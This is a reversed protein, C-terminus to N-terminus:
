RAAPLRAGRRSGPPTKGAYQEKHLGTSDPKAEVPALSTGIVVPELLQFYAKQTEADPFNFQLGCTAHRTFCGFHVVTGPIELHYSGLSLKVRCLDDSFGVAALNLHLNAGTTSLDVLTATWDKWAIGKARPSFGPRTSPRFSPRTGPRPSARGSRDILSITAKIPFTPNIEFRSGKRKNAEAAINTGINSIQKFPLVDSVQSLFQLSVLSCM